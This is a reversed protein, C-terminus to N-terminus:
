RRASFLSVSTADAMAPSHLQVSRSPADKAQARTRWMLVIGAWMSTWRLKLFACVVHPVPKNTQQPRCRLRSFESRIRGSYDPRYAAPTAASKTGGGRPNPGAPGFGPGFRCASKTGGPTGFGSTSITWWEVTRALCSNVLASLNSIPTENFTMWMTRGFLNKKYPLTSEEAESLFLVWTRARINVIMVRKSVTVRGRVREDVRVWARACARVCREVGPSWNGGTVRSTWLFHRWSNMAYWITIVHRTQHWAQM